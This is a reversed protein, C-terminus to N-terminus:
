DRSTLLPKMAVDDRSSELIWLCVRHEIGWSKSKFYQFHLTFKARPLLAPWAFLATWTEQRRQWPEVCKGDFNSSWAFQMGYTYVTLPAHIPTPRPPLLPPPPPPPPTPLTKPDYLFDVWTNQVPNQSSVCNHRKAQRTILIILYEMKSAKLRNM